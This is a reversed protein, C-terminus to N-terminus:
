ILALSHTPFIQPKRKSGWAIIKLKRYFISKVTLICGQIFEIRLFMGYITSNVSHKSSILLM